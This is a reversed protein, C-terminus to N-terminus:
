TMSDEASANDFGKAEAYEEGWFDADIPQSAPIITPMLGYADGVLCQSYKKEMEDLDGLRGHPPVPVAKTGEILEVKFWQVYPIIGVRGDPFIKVIVSYDKPMEMGRILLDSM